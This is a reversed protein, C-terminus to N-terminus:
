AYAAEAGGHQPHPMRNGWCPPYLPWFRIGSRFDQYQFGGGGFKSVPPRFRIVIVQM